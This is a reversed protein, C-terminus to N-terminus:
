AQVDQAQKTRRMLATDLVIHNPADALEEQMPETAFIQLNGVEARKPPMACAYALLVIAMSRQNQKMSNSLEPRSRMEELKHKWAGMSQSMTRQKVPMQRHM